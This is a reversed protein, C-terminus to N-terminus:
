RPPSYQWVSVGFWASTSAALRRRAGIGGPHSDSGSASSAANSACARRTVRAARARCAAPEPPDDASWASSCQGRGVVASWPAAPAAAAPQAPAAKPPQAKPPQAPPGVPAQAALQQALAITVAARLVSRMRESM